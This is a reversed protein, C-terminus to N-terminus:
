LESGNISLERVSTWDKRDCADGLSHNSEAEDIEKHILRQYKEGMWQWNDRLYEATSGVIYTRRGLAYRFASFAIDPSFYPQTWKM